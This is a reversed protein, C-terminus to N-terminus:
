QRSFSGGVSHDYWCILQLRTHRQLAHRPCMGTADPRDRALDPDRRIENEM